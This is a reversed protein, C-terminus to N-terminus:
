KESELMIKLAREAVGDDLFAALAKILSDPAEQLKLDRLWTNLISQRNFSDLQLITKLKQRVDAREQAVRMLDIFTDNDVIFKKSSRINNM